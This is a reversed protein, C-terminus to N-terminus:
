YPIVKEKNKILTMIWWVLLYLFGVIAYISLLSGRQLHTDLHEFADVGKERGISNITSINLQRGFQGDIRRM